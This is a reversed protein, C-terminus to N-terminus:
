TPVSPVKDAPTAPIATSRVGVHLTVGPASPISVAQRRLAELRQRVQERQDDLSAFSAEAEAIESLLEDRSRTV